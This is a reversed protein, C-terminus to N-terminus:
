ENSNEESQIKVLSEEKKNVAILYQDFTMLKNKIISRCIISIILFIFMLGYVIWLLNIDFDQSNINTLFLIPLSSLMLVPLIKLINDFLVLFTDRWSIPKNLGLRYRHCDEKTTFGDIKEIEDKKISLKTEKKTKEEKM